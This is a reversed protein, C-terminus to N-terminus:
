PAVKRSGHESKARGMNRSQAVYTPVKQSGPHLKARGMNRSQAVLTAVKRSRTAVNRSGRQSKTRSLGGAPTHFTPLLFVKEAVWNPRLM